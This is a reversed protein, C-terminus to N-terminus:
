RESLEIEMEKVELDEKITEKAKPSTKVEKMEQINKASANTKLEKRDSSPPNSNSTNLQVRREMEKLNNKRKNVCCIIIVIGVITGPPIDIVNTDFLVQGRGVREADQRRTAHARFYDENTRAVGQDDAVAVRPDLQPLSLPIEAFPPKPQELPYDPRHDPQRRAPGPHKIEGIRRGQGNIQNLAIRM